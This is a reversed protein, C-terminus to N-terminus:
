KQIFMIDDIHCAHCIYLVQHNLAIHGIQHSQYTTNHTDLALGYSFPFFVTCKSLVLQEIYTNLTRHQAHKPISHSMAFTQRNGLNFKWVNGFDSMVYSACVCVRKHVARHPFSFRSHQTHSRISPKIFWFLRLFTLYFTSRTGCMDGGSSECCICTDIM